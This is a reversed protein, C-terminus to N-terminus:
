SSYIVGFLQMWNVQISHFCRTTQSIWPRVEGTIIIYRIVFYIFKGNFETSFIIYTDIYFFHVMTPAKERHVQKAFSIDRCKVFRNTAANYCYNPLFDYNLEWFVHLTIRGLFHLLEKEKLIMTSNWSEFNSYDFTLLYWFWIIKAEWVGLVLSKKKVNKGRTTSVFPLFCLFVVKISNLM